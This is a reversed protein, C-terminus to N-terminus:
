RRRVEGAPEIGDAQALLARDPEYDMRYLLNPKEGARRVWFEILDDLEERTEDLEDPDVEAVRELIRDRVSELRHRHAAAAAAGANGRM